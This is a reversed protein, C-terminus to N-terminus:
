IGNRTGKRVRNKDSKAHLIVGLIMLFDVFFIDGYCVFCLGEVCVEELMKKCWVLASLM